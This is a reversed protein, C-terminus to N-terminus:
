RHMWLGRKGFGHGFGMVKHLTDLSLGNEQAWAEMESRKEQMKQQREEATLNKFEEFNPHNNKMEEHKKLIAQKQAETIKEDKVAQTLNEELKAQMQAQHEGRYEEFVATVDGEKLNFREAIKKILDDHFSQSQANVSFGAFLVIGLIALAILIKKKM